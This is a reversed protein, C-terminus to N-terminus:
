PVRPHRHSRHPWRHPLRFHGSVATYHTGARGTGDQTVYNVSAGAPANGSLQCTIRASGVDDNVRVDAATMSPLATTIRTRPLIRIVYRDSGALELNGSHSGGDVREGLDLYFEKPTRINNNLINIVM